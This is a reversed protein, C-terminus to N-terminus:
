SYTALNKAAIRLQASTNRKEAAIKKAAEKQEAAHSRTQKFTGKYVRMINKAGNTDRDIEFNCEKNVCVYMHASGLKPHLSNCKLCTKSTRFEDIVHVNCSYEEAKTILRQRFSYHSLAVMHKKVDKTLVGTSRIISRTSMNGIAINDYKKVLSIALQCHLDQTKHFIRDRIRKNKKKMKAELTRTKKKHVHRQSGNGEEVKRMDTLLSDYKLTFEESPVISLLQKPKKRSNVGINNNFAVALDNKYQIKQIRLNEERQLKELQDLLDSYAELRTKRFAPKLKSSKNYRKRKHKASNKNIPERNIRNRRKRKKRREQKENPTTAETDSKIPSIIIRACEIPYTDRLNDLIRLDRQSINGYLESIKLAKVQKNKAPSWLNGTEKDKHLINDYYNIYTEKSDSCVKIINNNTNSITQFTNSGPDLAASEIRGTVSKVAVDVPVYLIYKGGKNILRCTKKIGMIPKESKMVGYVSICFGNKTKSINNETLVISKSDNNKFRLKFHKINRAKLNALASVYAKHADLIANYVIHSNTRHKKMYGKIDDPLEQMIQDRFKYESPVNDNGKRMDNIQKAAFNYVRNFGIMDRKLQMCQQLTPYLKIKKARIIINDTKVINVNVNIDKSPDYLARTNDNKAHIIDNIDVNLDDSTTSM